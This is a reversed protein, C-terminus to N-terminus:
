FPPPKFNFDTTPATFSFAKAQGSGFNMEGQTLPVPKAESPIQAARGSPVRPAQPIQPLSSSRVEPRYYNGGQLSPLYGSSSGMSSSGFSGSQEHIFKKFQPQTHKLSPPVNPAPHYGPPYGASPGLSGSSFSGVHEPGHQKWPSFDTHPPGAPKGITEMLDPQASNHPAHHVKPQPTPVVSGTQRLIELLENSHNGQGINSAVHPSGAHSAGVQSAGGHSSSGVHSASGVHSPGIYSTAVHLQSAGFQPPGARSPGAHSVSPGAHSAGFHTTTSSGQSENSTKRSSSNQFQFAPSDPRLQSTLSTRQTQMRSGEKANATLKAGIERAIQTATKQMSRSVIPTNNATFQHMSPSPTEAFQHHHTSSGTPTSYSPYGADRMAVLHEYAEQQRTKRSKHYQQVKVDGDHPLKDPTMQQHGALFIADDVEHFTTAAHHVQSLQELNDSPIRPTLTAFNNDGHSGFSTANNNDPPYDPDEPSVWKIEMNQPPYPVHDLPYRRHMEPDGHTRQWVGWNAAQDIPADKPYGGQAKFVLKKIAPNGKNLYQQYVEEMNARGDIKLREIFLQIVKNEPSDRLSDYLDDLTPAQKIAQELVAPRTAAARSLNQPVPHHLRHSPPFGFDERRVGGRFQREMKTTTTDPRHVTSPAYLFLESAHIFGILRCM